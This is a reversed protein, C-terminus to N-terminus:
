EGSASSPPDPPLPMWHTPEFAGCYGPAMFQWGVCYCPADEAREYWASVCARIIDAVDYHKPLRGLLVVQTGDKPASEIDRWENQMM